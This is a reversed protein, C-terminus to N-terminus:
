LRHLDLDAGGLHMARGLVADGRVPLILLLAGVRLQVVLHTPQPLQEIQLGIELLAVLEELEQLDVQEAVLHKDVSWLVIHNIERRPGGGHVEGVANMGLNAVVAHAGLDIPAKHRQIVPELVAIDGLDDRVRRRLGTAVPEIYRLARVRLGLNAAVQPLLGPILVDLAAPLRQLPLDGPEASRLASLEIGPPELGDGFVQVVQVDVAEVGGYSICVYVGLVDDTM